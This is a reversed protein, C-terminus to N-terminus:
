LDGDHTSNPVLVFCAVASILAAVGYHFFPPEDFILGSTVRSAFM